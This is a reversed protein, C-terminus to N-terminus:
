QKFYWYIGDDCPRPWRSLRLRRFALGLRWAPVAGVTAPLRFDHPWSGLTLAFVPCKRIAQQESIANFIMAATMQNHM